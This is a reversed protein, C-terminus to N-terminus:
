MLNKLILTNCRPWNEPSRMIDSRKFLDGPRTRIELIIVHDNTKTNGKVKVQSIRAQKGEYIRIELDIQNNNVRRSLLQMLSFIVM